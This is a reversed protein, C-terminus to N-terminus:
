EQRLPNPHWIRCRSFSTPFTSSEARRLAPPLRGITVTATRGTVRAKLNADHVSPLEDVPHLTVNDAVIDVSLGDDPIPPGHRSLNHLPSNVGIEIRQLSGREIRQIVWERLEPVILVPWISKLAAASMPTGAFGLKLRPPDSYDISGTGAVGIEGNSIDAQTLIVQRHETDFRLGIAIRNLILPALGDSGALVITGGSLDMQWDPIDGNPPQLRALLTIRNEGSVM